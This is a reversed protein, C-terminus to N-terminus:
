FAAENPKIAIGETYLSEDICIARSRLFDCQDISYGDKFDPLIINDLLVENSYINVSMAKISKNKSYDYGPMEVAKFDTILMKVNNRTYTGINMKVVEVADDGSIESLPTLILQCEDYQVYSPEESVNGYEDIYQLQAQEEAVGSIGTLYAKQKAGDDWISPALVECGLYHAFIREKQENTYM